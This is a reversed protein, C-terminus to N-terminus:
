VLDREDWNPRKEKQLTPELEDLPLHEEEPEVAAKGAPPPLELGHQRRLRELEKNMQAEEWSESMARERGPLGFITFYHILLGVGWPLLPYFFWIERSGGLTILNMALFFAGVALYSALHAYFGKKAKVRKRAARHLAQEDMNDFILLQQCRRRLLLM